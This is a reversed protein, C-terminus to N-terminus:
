QDMPARHSGQGWPAATQSSTPRRFRSAEGGKKNHQNLRYWGGWHKCEPRCVLLEPMEENLMEDVQRQVKPCTLDWGQKIDFSLGKRGEAQAIKAFRPPSFIEAVACRSEAKQWAQHQSM